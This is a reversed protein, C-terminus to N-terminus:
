GSSLTKTLLDAPNLYTNVYATSWKDHAAGEPVFHYHISHSKNKLTSYPVTTNALVSQNYCFIFAPLICPIGMM